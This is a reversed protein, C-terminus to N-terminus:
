VQQSGSTGLAQSVTFGTPNLDVASSATGFWLLAHAFGGSASNYGYGVQQSGSIGNGLSQTFGSPSLDVFNSATGSWLLAHLYSGSTASAGAGVQQSGCTGHGESTTFGGPTLDTYYYTAARSALPLGLGNLTLVAALILRSGA